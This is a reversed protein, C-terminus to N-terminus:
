RRGGKRARAPSASAPRRLRWEGGRRVYRDDPEPRCHLCPRYGAAIADEWTLFFVRNEKKMKRRGSPCTLRGFIKRPRHGAFRGPRESAVLEGDKLVVYKNGM